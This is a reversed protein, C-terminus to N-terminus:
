GVLRQWAQEDAEVRARCKACYKRWGSERGPIPVAVKDCGLDAAWGDCPPALVGNSTAAERSSENNAASM